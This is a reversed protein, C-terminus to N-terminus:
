PGFPVQLGASFAKYDSIAMAKKANDQITWELRDAEAPIVSLGTRLAENKARLDENDHEMLPVIKNVLKSLQNEATTLQKTASEMLERFRLLVTIDLQPEITKVMTAMSKITQTSKPRM